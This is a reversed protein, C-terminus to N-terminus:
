RVRGVLAGIQAGLQGDTYCYLQIARSPCLGVCIGCGQCLGIEIEAKGTEGIFPANFPCSRICTLCASCSEPDVEAVAGGWEMKSSVMAKARSAASRAELVVESPTKSEVGTGCLFVGEVISATPKLKVQTPIFFGERDVPTGFVQAVHGTDYPQTWSSMVVLDTEISLEEGLNLDKVRVKVTDGVTILPSAETRIFSVGRSMAERYDLESLGFALVDRAVITVQVRPDMEKMRIANRLAEIHTIREPCYTDEERLTIMVTRDPVRGQDMISELEAQTVVLSGNLSPSPVESAEWAIIAAGCRIEEAGESSRVLATFAGPEGEFREVSSHGHVRVLDSDTIRDRMDELHGPRIGDHYNFVLRHPSFPLVLHVKAGESVLEDTAVVASMGNGYVLVEESEVRGRHHPAPVLLSCKAVAAEVLLGAKSTAESLNHVLSCQERINAIEVMYPNLGSEQATSKFRAEVAKPSCGAVVFRDLDNERIVNVITERSEMSCPFDMVMCEEVGDMSSVKERVSEIDLRGDVSGGCRCLFVGIRGTPEREGRVVPRRTRAPRSSSSMTVPESGPPLTM